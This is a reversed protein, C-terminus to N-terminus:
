HCQLEVQFPRQQDLDSDSHCSGDTHGGAFVAMAGIVFALVSAIRNM